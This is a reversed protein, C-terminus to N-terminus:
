VEVPRTPDTIWDSWSGIYVDPDDCIGAVNLALALHTAQVGSGCYTGVALTGPPGIHTMSTDPTGADPTGADPKSTDPTDTGGAKMLPRFHGALEEAPLFRGHSDVNALAPASVAGPIHGAVSDISENEGRFRDAPRADLLLHRGAYVAADDANLLRGVGGGSPSFDGTGATDPGSETPQGAQAWAAMGGDLVRVDPFGLHRLIWWLRSAPLSAWDDYAVVPRSMTVGASRMAATFTAADPMPHRGGLGDTRITALGTDMDVYSAGPIHAREFERRGTPGSMRYRVDLLVPGRPPSDHEAGALLSALEGVQILPSTGM